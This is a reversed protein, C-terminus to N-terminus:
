LTSGYLGTEERFERLAAIEVSEDKKIKGKPLMYGGGKHMICLIEKKKNRERICICGACADLWFISSLKKKLTNWRHSFNLSM